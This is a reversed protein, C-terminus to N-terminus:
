IRYGSRLRMRRGSANRRPFSSPGAVHRASPSQKSRAGPKPLPLRNSAGQWSRWVPQAPASCVHGDVGLCSCSQGGMMELGAWRRGLLAVGTAAMLAVGLKLRSGSEGHRPIQERIEVSIEQLTRTAGTVTRREFAGTGGTSLMNPKEPRQSGGAQQLQPKRNGIHQTCRQASKILGDLAQHTAFPISQQRQWLNARERSRTHPTRAPLHGPSHTSEPGGEM